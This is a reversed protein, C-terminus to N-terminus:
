SYTCQCIQEVNLFQHCGQPNDLPLLPRVLVTRVLLPLGTEQRRPPGLAPAVLAHVAEAGGDRVLNLAVLELGPVLVLHPQHATM